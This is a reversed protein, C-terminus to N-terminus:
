VFVFGVCYLYRRATLQFNLDSQKLTKKGPRGTGLEAARLIRSNLALHPHKAPQPLVVLPPTFSDSPLNDKLWLVFSIAQATDGGVLRALHFEHLARQRDGGREWPFGGAWVEGKM